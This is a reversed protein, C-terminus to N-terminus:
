AYSKLAMLVRALDDHLAVREEPTLFAGLEVERGGGSLTLYNPVPGGEPILRLAVWAPDAHWDQAPGRPNERHLHLGRRSLDMVETVSRDRWNRRLALWLAGLALGAFPLIGWLVPNGLVTLLPLALLAASIGIVAAFGPASLANHPWLSLHWDSGTAPTLAYPM